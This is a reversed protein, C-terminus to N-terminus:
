AVTKKLSSYCGSIPILGSSSIVGGVRRTGTLSLTVARCGGEAEAPKPVCHPRILKSKSPPSGQLASGIKLNKVAPSGDRAVTPEESVGCRLTQSAKGM